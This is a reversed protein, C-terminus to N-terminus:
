EEWSGSTENSTLKGFSISENAKGQVNSFPMTGYVHIAPVSADGMMVSDAVELNWKERAGTFPIFPLSDASFTPFGASERSDAYSQNKFKTELISVEITDRVFGKFYNDFRPGEPWKSLAYAQVETMRNDQFAAGKKELGLSVLHDYEAKILFTDPVLGLQKVHPVKGNKTYDVLDDWNDIYKGHKEMYAKQVFRIDQLNQISLSKCMEYNKNYTNTDKVSKWSMALTFIAAVGAGIGIIYVLGPKLKGSSYLVSIGGAAFMMIAAMMFMTDQANKIGFIVMIIGVIFFIAPISFKKILIALKSTM